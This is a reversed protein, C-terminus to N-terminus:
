DHFEGAVGNEDRAAGAADAAGQGFGQVVAAIVDYDGAAALGQEVVDGGGSRAQDAQLDIDVVRSRQRPQGSLQAVAKGLQVYEEGVGADRALFVDRGVGPGGIVCFGDHLGVDQAHYAHRSGQKRQDFALRM